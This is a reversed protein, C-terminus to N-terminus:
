VSPGESRYGVPGPAIPSRRRIDDELSSYWLRGQENDVVRIFDIEPRSELLSGILRNQEEIDQRSQNVLFVNTLAPSSALAGIEQQLTRAYDDIVQRSEELLAQTNSRVRQNYFRTDIVSFLGSYAAIAFGTFIVTAVLLSVLVKQVTKM